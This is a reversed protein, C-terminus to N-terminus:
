ERIQQVSKVVTHRIPVWTVKKFLAVIAIPVYTFIFIPFTFLYCIKKYWECHIRRWETITTVLGFFFLSSYVSVINGLVAEMTVDTWLPHGLLVGVIGFASNLVITLLTLLTAPALTMLMDYCQFRHQELIGNLLQGGYNAFVQYFGKTWRLRQNWSEHFDTPQEDYLVAQECYGIVRGQIINDTSFEIDETLLHHKWGNNERIIRNAVLFGTGSIACSTGCQMRAGNLYKSERLFWLAYGASIWNSGYNKSNRYSTVIEYGNDFVKNMERVYNEDLVNDADFVFYGDYAELGSRAYIKEFLYNLAYGKGVLRRDFREYVIARHDEAIQATNDTCNDAVVYIDLLEQPYNQRHLSELLEGIVAGENRASILVAYKHLKKATYVKQKKFFRVLVYGFQYCYCLTFVLLMIFNFSRIWTVM